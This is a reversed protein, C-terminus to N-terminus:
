HTSHGQIATERNTLVSQNPPTSIDIYQACQVTWVLILMMQM